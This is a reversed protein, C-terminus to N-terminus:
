ASKYKSSFNDSEIICNKPINKVTELLEKPVHTVFTQDKKATTTTLRM